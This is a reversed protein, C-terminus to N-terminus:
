SGGSRALEVRIPLHDSYGERDGVDWERPLGEETLLEPPPEASFSRFSLGKDDLLGPALLLNDIREENGDYFYSWGGYEAWPSWLAVGDATRGAGDVTGAILLRDEYAAAGVAAEAPLLATPYAGSIRAWEDPSENLDGALIVEAAPDESLIEAIRRAALGAQARRLPETEEAGGLKSKWHAALVTLRVGKADLVAELLPRLEGSPKGPDTLVSHARAELLPLRSLLVIRLAQGDDGAVARTPYSGPLLGALDDAVRRNEAEQLVIVDPGGPVAARIARAFNNLRCKYGASDWQGKAVSWGPFEAGDDRDDFLTQLNYSLITVSSTPLELVSCRSSCLSFVALAACAAAGIRSLRM